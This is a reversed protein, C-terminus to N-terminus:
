LAFPKDPSYISDFFGLYPIDDEICKIKYKLGAQIEEDMTDIYQIFHFFEEVQVLKLFLPLRNLWQRDLSNEREYGVLVQDFYHDMFAKREDLGAFMTRGIGGEWACALEYMFWFYSCDDFDFVTINGNSYDVTFNGDNFDAHILGYSDRDKPLLGLKDYLSNIRYYVRPFREAFQMAANFTPQTSEFWKPRTEKKSAPQYDKALFHMRGLMGGWNQFYEEIPVDARYKYGNDPVRMGAGRTFSVTYFSLEETNIIELLNGNRSPIPRSVNVGQEALYNIFHLESRIQQATRDPRYSIRLILPKGDQQYEYVINQCGEFVAIEVLSDKKVGYLRSVPELVEQKCRQLIKDRKMPDEFQV